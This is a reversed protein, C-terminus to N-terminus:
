PLPFVRYLRSPQRFATLDYYLQTTNTLTITEVTVWADTPGFQNIYDIRVQSGITGVLTLETALGLQLASPASPANTQWARYFGYSPLPQSVDLYLQPV